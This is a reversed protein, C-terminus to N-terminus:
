QALALPKTIQRATEIFIEAVPSLSRRKVVTIGIPSPPVPLKIPLAKIAFRVCSFYLLSSPFMTLYRGTSLLGIQLQVSISAVTRKPIELGSSRFAEACRLGVPTDLAPLCWPEDMLDRLGVARRRRVWPNRSGAAVVLTEQFLIETELDRGMASRVIPGIILDVNRERLDQYQLRRTQLMGVAAQTVFLSVLPYKRSFEAVATSLLGAAMPESTGIRVEGASPDSLHEIETVGQRLEDFITVSRRLLARGHATPEIGHQSREILRVGLVIEMESIAKSVAPQTLNLADATKMMSGQRVLTEFLRLDRLKLRSIVRDILDM